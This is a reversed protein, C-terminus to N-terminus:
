DAEDEFIPMKTTFLKTAEKSYEFSGKNSRVLRLFYSSSLNHKIIVMLCRQKELDAESIGQDILYKRVTEKQLTENVLYISSININMMPSTGYSLNRTILDNIHLKQDFLKLGPKPYFEMVTYLLKVNHLIPLKMMLKVAFYEQRSINFKRSPPDICNVYGIFKVFNDEFYTNLSDVVVLRISPNRKLFINCKVLSWLFEEMSFCEQIKLKSLLAELLQDKDKQSFPLEYDTVFREIEDKLLNSLPVFDFDASTAIFLIDIHSLCETKSEALMIFDDIMWLAKKLTQFLITTLLQNKTRKDSYTLQNVLASKSKDTVTSANMQKKLNLDEMYDSKRSHSTRKKKAPMPGLQALGDNSVFSSLSQKSSYADKKPDDMQENSNIGDKLDQPLDDGFLKDIGSWNETIHDWGAHDRCLEAEHVTTLADMISLMEEYTLKREEM